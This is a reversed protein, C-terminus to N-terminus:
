CGAITAATSPTPAGVMPTAIKVVLAERSACQGPVRRPVIPRAQRVAGHRIARVRPEFSCFATPQTPDGEPITAALQAQYRAQLEGHTPIKADM